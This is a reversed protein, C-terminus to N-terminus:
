DAKFLAQFHNKGMEALGEFTSVSTDGHGKLKWITNSVKRGKAFAHFLKTNEDGKDLWIAWEKSAM